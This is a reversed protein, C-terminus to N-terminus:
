GNDITSWVARATATSPQRQHLFDARPGRGRAAFAAAKAFRATDIPESLRRAAKAPDINFYPPIADKGSSMDIGRRHEVQIHTKALSNCM